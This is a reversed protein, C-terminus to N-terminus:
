CINKLIMMIKDQLETETLLRDEQATDVSSIIWGNGQKM